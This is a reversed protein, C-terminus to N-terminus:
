NRRKLTTALVCRCNIVESAPASSDGPYKLSNGDGSIFPKGFPRKQGNMSSHSNRVREDSATVWKQILENEGLSGSDVAQQLAEDNAEHIVRLAETRAITRARFNLQREAYRNVMRDIQDNTLGIGTDRANDVTRDFRRDRLTRRLTEASNQELLKRYNEVAQLQQRSLGILTAFNKAQQKPNMGRSIGDIMITRVADRQDSTFENILRLRSQQMLRVARTNVQDFDVTVSLLGTLHSAAAQGVVTYFPIVNNAFSKISGEILTFASELQGQELLEVIKALVKPNKMNNIAQVFARYLKPEISSLLTLLYLETNESKKISYM